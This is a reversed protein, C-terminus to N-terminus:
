KANNKELRTRITSVVQENIPYRYIALIALGFFTSPVLANLMRMSILTQTTQGAELSVEFGTWVLVYGSVLLAASSGLKTFWGYAAGFMGERRMGSRDDDYDCVDAIMAPALIWLGTIAPATLFLSAIQLYPLEPTILFWSSLSGAIGLSLIGMLAPRKGYRTGLWSVLPVTLLATIQYCSGAIGQITSALKQDGGAVYFINLYMGIQMISVVGIIVSVCCAIVLLFPKTTLAGKISDIFGWGKSSSPLEEPKVRHAEKVFIAPIMTACALAIGCGIGVWRMGDVIGDFVDRQTLWYLWNMAFGAITSFFSRYSMVRTRENYDPTMEFGLALYPVIFVTFFTYYLLLMGVFAWFTGNESLGTPIWWIAAFAISTLIGGVFVFPRRRGFRSKFNDSILGMVPDTIADWVRPITMAVSVLAPSVGFGINLFPTAMINLANHFFNEAFGGIGFATKKWFPLNTKKPHPM